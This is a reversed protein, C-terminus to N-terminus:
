SFSVSQSCILLDIPTVQVNLKNHKSEMRIGYFIQLSVWMNRACWIYYTPEAGQTLISFKWPSVYSKTFTGVLMFTVHPLNGLNQTVKKNFNVNDGVSYTWQVLPYMRIIGYLDNDM